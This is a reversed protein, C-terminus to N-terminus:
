KEKIYTRSYIVKIYTCSYIRVKIDRVLTVDDGHYYKRKGQINLGNITEM